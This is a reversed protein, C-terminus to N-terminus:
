SASASRKGTGPETEASQLKRRMRGMLITLHADYEESSEAFRGIEALTQFVLVGLRADPLKYGMERHLKAIADTVKAMLAESFPISPAQGAEAYAPASPEGLNGVGTPPDDHTSPRMVGEGTILWDLSVGYQGSIASLFSLKPENRGSLYNGLTRRAVGSHSALEDLGGCEAAIIRLRDAIGLEKDTNM